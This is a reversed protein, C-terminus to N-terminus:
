DLINMGVLVAEQRVSLVKRLDERAAALDGQAKKRSERLAALKAKITEPSSSEDDLAAQLAQSEPSGGRNRDQPAAGATAGAAPPQGGGPGRGFRGGSFSQRQADMVKGILPQLVTWEDDSAKLATKMREEMRKRFEEPNYNGRQRNGGNADAAPAPSGPAAPTAPTAPTQAHLTSAALAAVTVCLATFPNLKM